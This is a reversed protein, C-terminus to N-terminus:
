TTEKHVQDLTQKAAKMTKKQKQAYREKMTVYQQLYQVASYGIEILATRGMKDLTEWREGHSEPEPFGRKQILLSNGRRISPISKRM